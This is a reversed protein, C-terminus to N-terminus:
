RCVVTMNRSFSSKEGLAAAFGQDDEPRSSGGPGKKGDKELVADLAAVLEAYRPYTRSIGIRVELEQVKMCQLKGVQDAPLSLILPRKYDLLIDARGSQLVKFAQKRNSLDIWHYSSGASRITEGWAGYGYGSILALRFPKLDEVAKIVPAKAAKLMWIQLELVALANKTYAVQETHYEHGIWMGLDGSQLM